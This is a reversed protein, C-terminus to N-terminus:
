RRAREGLEEEPEGGPGDGVPEITACDKKRRGDGAHAHHSGDGVEDRRHAEHRPLHDRDAKRVPTKLHHVNGRTLREREVDRSALDRRVGDGGDREAVAQRLRGAREGAARKDRGEPRRRAVESDADRVREGGREHKREAHPSGVGGFPDGNRERARQPLGRAEHEVHGHEAREREGGDRSLHERVREAGGHRDEHAVDQSRTRLGEARERARRRHARGDGDHRARRPGGRRPSSTGMGRGNAGAAMAASTNADENLGATGTRTRSTRRDPGCARPASVPEADTPAVTATTANDSRGARTRRSGSRLRDAAAKPADSMARPALVLTAIATAIMSTTPTHLPANSTKCYVSMCSATGTLWRPRAM